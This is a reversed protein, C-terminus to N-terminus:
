SGGGRDKRRLRRVATSIQNLRKRNYAAREDATEHRGEIADSVTAVILAMLVIV